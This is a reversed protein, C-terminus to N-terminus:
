ALCSQRTIIVLYLLHDVSTKQKQWHWFQNRSITFEKERGKLLEAHLFKFVVSDTDAHIHYSSNEDWQPLWLGRSVYFYLYTRSVWYVTGASIICFCLVNKLHSTCLLWLTLMGSKSFHRASLTYTHTYVNGLSNILM